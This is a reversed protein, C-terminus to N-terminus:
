CCDLCKDKCGCVLPTRVRCCPFKKAIPIDSVHNAFTKKWEPPQMEINKNGKNQLNQSSTESTQKQIQQKLM